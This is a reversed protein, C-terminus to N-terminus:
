PRTEVSALVAEVDDVPVLVLDGERHTCLGLLRGNRDIVPTGETVDDVDDLPVLVSGKASPRLELRVPSDDLAVVEGGTTTADIGRSSPSAFAFGSDDVATGSESTSISLIAISSSEDRYVIEAYATEGESTVITFSDSDAVADFTTVAMSAGATPIVIARPTLPGNSAVDLLSLDALDIDSSTLRLITTSDDDGEHPRSLAFLATVILIGLSVSIAV